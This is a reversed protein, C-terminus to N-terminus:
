LYFYALNFANKRNKRNKKKECFTLSSTAHPSLKFTIDHRMKHSFLFFFFFWLNENSSSSFLNSFSLMFLWVHTLYAGSALIIRAQKFYVSKNQSEQKPFYFKKGKLVNKSLFSLNSQHLLFVRILSVPHVPHDSDEGPACAFLYM